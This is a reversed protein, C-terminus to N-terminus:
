CPDGDLNGCVGVLDGGPIQALLAEVEATPLMPNNHISGGTVIEQLGALGQVSTLTPNDYIVIEDVRELAALGDLNSLMPSSSIVLLEHVYRLSSLGSVDTWSLAGTQLSRVCATGAFDSLDQDSGLYVEHISDECYDPLCLYYADNPAGLTSCGQGADCHRDETCPVMACACCDESNDCNCQCVLLEEGCSVGPYDCEPEPEGTETESTETEDTQATTETETDGTTGSEMPYGTMGTTEGGDNAIPDSNCALAGFCAIGALNLPYGRYKRADNM